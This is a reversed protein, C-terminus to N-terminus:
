GVNNEDDMLKILSLILIVDGDSDGGNPWSSMANETKIHANTVTHRSLM